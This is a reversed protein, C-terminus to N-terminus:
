KKKGRKKKKKKKKKKKLRATGEAQPLEQALSGACVVATIWAV